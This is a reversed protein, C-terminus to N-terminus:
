LIQKKELSQAFDAGDKLGGDQPLEVGHPLDTFFESVSKENTHM